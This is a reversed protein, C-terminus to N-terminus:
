GPPDEFEVDVDFGLDGGELMAELEAPDIGLSELDLEGFDMEGPMPGPMGPMGDPGVEFEVDADAEDGSEVLNPPAPQVVAPVSREAWDTLTNPFIGIWLVAAACGALAIGAAAPVGVHSTDTEAAPDVFWMTVVLRLYLYAAIVASLMAVAALWATGADVAAIVASFKAYFGATFPVGAQALLFFTFLGAVLPSTRGLGQYDTLTHLRDGSRAVLTVVTFSGIVLASYATLYIVVAATGVDSAAEVGLLIFGAHSISSYALLRKVNSQVIAGLAGGVLSLVALGQIVPRWDAGASEFAMVLVRLMGAFAAVKVVSSMFTVLPSPTGDYVDPSWSHFPVLAVKFAFGVILLGLGLLLMLGSSGLLVNAALFDTIHVLGTGGTAGYIFAIGYLFFASSFAGLVFYKFGAEQSQVRRLDMAALVYAAVSLTELGLLLVILDNASVMVMGGLAAFMTLAFMEPFRDQERDLYAEIVLVVAVMSVAILMTLFVSFGDAAIVGGVTSFPGTPDVEPDYWLVADEWGHVQAWLPIATIFSGVSTLVAWLAYFPRPIRGKGLSSITLLLLGGLAMVVMPWLAVWSVDPTFVADSPFLEM